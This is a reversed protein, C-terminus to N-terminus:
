GRKKRCQVADVHSDAHDGEVVIAVIAAGHNREVVVWNSRPAAASLEVFRCSRCTFAIETIAGVCLGLLVFAGICM